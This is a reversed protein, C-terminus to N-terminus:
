PSPSVIENLWSRNASMSPTAARAHCRGGLLQLRPAEDAISASSDLDDVALPEFGGRAFAVLDHASSEVLKQLMLDASSPRPSHRANVGGPTGLAQNSAAVVHSGHVLLPLRPLVTLLGGLEDHRFGVHRGDLPCEFERKKTSRWRMSHRLVKKVASSTLSGFKLTLRLPSWFFCPLLLRVPQTAAASWPSKRIPAYGQKWRTRAPKLILM